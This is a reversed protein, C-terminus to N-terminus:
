QGPRPFTSHCCSCLGLTRFSGRLICSPPLSCSGAGPAMLTRMHQLAVGRDSNVVRQLGRVTAGSVKRMECVEPLSPPCSRYWDGVRHSEHMESKKKKKKGQPSFCEAVISSFVAIIWLEPLIGYNLCKGPQSFWASVLLYKLSRPIKGTGRGERRGPLEKWADM